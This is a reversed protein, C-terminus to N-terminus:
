LIFPLIFYTRFSFPYLSLMVLLIKLLNVLLWLKGWDCCIVCTVCIWSSSILIFLFTGYTSTLLLFSRCISLRMFYSWSELSFLSEMSEQTFRFIPFGCFIFVINDEKTFRFATEIQTWILLFSRDPVTITILIFSSFVAPFWITVKLPLLLFNNIPM